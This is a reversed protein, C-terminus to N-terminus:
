KALTHSQNQFLSFYKEVIKILFCKALFAVSLSVKQISDFLKVKWQTEVFHKKIFITLFVKRIQQM